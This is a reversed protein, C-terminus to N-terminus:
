CYASHCESLSRPGKWSSPVLEMGTRLTEVLILNTEVRLIPDWIHCTTWSRLHCSFPAHQTTCTTTCQPVGKM